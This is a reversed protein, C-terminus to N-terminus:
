RCTARGIENPCLIGLIEGERVDLDLHDLARVLGHSQSDPYAKCLGRARLVIEFHKKEDNM